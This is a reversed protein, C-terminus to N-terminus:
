QAGPLAFCAAEEANRVFLKGHAITPHNWTKGNLAKIQAVEKYETPTAPILIAEGKESV